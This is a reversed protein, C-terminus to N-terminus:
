HQRQLASVAEALNKYCPKAYFLSRNRQGVQIERLVTFKRPLRVSTRGLLIVRKFSPELILTDPSVTMSEIRDEFLFRVPVHLLPLRAIFQSGESMNQCRFMAGASLDRLQQDLPASQFYRDDFDEPVFPLTEDMWQQNYTGAFSIRPQWGRGVPGFGIPEPKDSWNQMRDETKEINPLATGVVTRKDGNLHFGVGVLNRM